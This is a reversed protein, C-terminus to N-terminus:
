EHLRKRGSIKKNFRERVLEQERELEQQDKKKEDESSLPSLDAMTEFDRSDNAKFAIQLKNKYQGDATKEFTRWEDIRDLLASLEFGPANKYWESPPRHTTVFLYRANFTAQSNKVPVTEPLQSMLRLLQDWSLWDNYEDMFVIPQQRYEPWWESTDKTYVASGIAKMRKQAYRTKGSGPPGTYVYVKTKWQRASQDHKQQKEAKCIREIFLYQSAYLLKDFKYVSLPEYNNDKLIQLTKLRAAAGRNISSATSSAKNSSVLSASEFNSDQEEEEEQLSVQQWLTLAANSTSPQEVVTSLEDEADGGDDHEIPTSPKVGRPLKGWEKFDGGKKCYYIGQEPTGNAIEVHCDPLRNFMSQLTRANDFQMYIQLHPTGDDGEGYEHGVVCYRPNLERLRAVYEDEPYNNWTICFNRARVNSM